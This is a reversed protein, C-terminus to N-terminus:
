TDRRLAAMKHGINLLAIMQARSKASVSDRRMYRAQAPMADAARTSVREARPASARAM